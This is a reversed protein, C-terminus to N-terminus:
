EGKMICEFYATKGTEMDSIHIPAYSAGNAIEIKDGSVRECMRIMAKALLSQFDDQMQRFQIYETESVSVRKEEAKCVGFSLCVVCAVLLKRM